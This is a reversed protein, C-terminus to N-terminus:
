VDLSEEVFRMFFATAVGLGTAPVPDIGMVLYIASAAVIM